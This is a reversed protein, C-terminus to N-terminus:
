LDEGRFCSPWDLGFKICWDNTDRAWDHGCFLPAKLKETELARSFARCQPTVNKTFARSFIGRGWLSVIDLHLVVFSMFRQM